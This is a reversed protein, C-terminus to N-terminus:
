TLMLKITTAIDPILQIWFLVRLSPSLSEFLQSLETIRQTSHFFSVQAKDIIDVPYLEDTIVGEKREIWNHM